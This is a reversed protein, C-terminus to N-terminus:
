LQVPNKATKREWDAGVYAVMRQRVTEEQEFYGLTGALELLAQGVYPLTSNRRVEADLSAAAELASWNCAWAGKSNGSKTYAFGAM